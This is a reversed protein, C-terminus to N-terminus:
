PSLIIRMNGYSITMPEPNLIYIFSTSKQRMKEIHFDDEQNPKIKKKMLIMPASTYLDPTEPQHAAKIVCGDSAITSGFSGPIQCQQVLIMFSKELFMANSKELM